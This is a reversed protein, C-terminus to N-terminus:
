LRSLNQLTATGKTVFNDVRRHMVIASAPCISKFERSQRIAGPVSNRDVQLFGKKLFYKEATTTLLYVDSIQQSECVGFFGRIMKDALQRDRYTEKVALSRLLGSNGHKELGITAVLEEEDYALFLQVNDEMLDSVPLKYTTLFETVTKIDKPEFTQINLEM